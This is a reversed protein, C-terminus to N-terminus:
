FLEAIEQILKMEYNEIRPQSEEYNLICAMSYEFRNSVMDSLEKLMKKVEEMVDKGRYSYEKLYHNIRNKYEGAIQENEFPLFPLAKKLLNMKLRSFEGEELDWSINSILNRFPYNEITVIKEIKKINKSVMM